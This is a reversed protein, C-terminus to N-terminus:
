PRHRPSPGSAGPGWARATFDLGDPVVAFDRSELDLRVTQVGAAEHVERQAPDKFRAAGYVTNGAAALQAAVPGAVMGTVGTVLSGKGTLPSATM